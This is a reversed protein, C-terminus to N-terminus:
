PERLCGAGAATKLCDGQPDSEGRASCGAQPSRGSWLVAQLSTGACSQGARETETATPHAQSEPTAPAKRHRQAPPWVNPLTSTTLQHAESTLAAPSLLFDPLESDWLQLEQGTGEM